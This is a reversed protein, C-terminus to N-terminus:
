PGREFGQPIELVGKVDRTFKLSGKKFGRTIIKSGFQFRQQSKLVGDFGWKWAAREPPGFRRHQLRVADLRARLL